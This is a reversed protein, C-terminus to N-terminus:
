KRMIKPDLHVPILHIRVVGALREGMGLGRVTCHTWPYCASPHALRPMWIIRLISSVRCPQSCTQAVCPAQHSQFQVKPKQPGGLRVAPQVVGRANRLGLQVGAGHVCLPLRQLPFGSILPYMNGNALCARITSPLLRGNRMCYIISPLLIIFCCDPSSADLKIVIFRPIHTPSEGNCQQSWSAEGCSFELSFPSVAATRSM